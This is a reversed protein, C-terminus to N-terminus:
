GNHRGFRECEGDNSRGAGEPGDVLAVSTDYVAFVGGAILCGHVYRGPPLNRWKASVADGEGIRTIDTLRVPRAGQLARARDREIFGLWPVFRRDGDPLLYAVHGEPRDELVHNGYNLRRNLVLSPM